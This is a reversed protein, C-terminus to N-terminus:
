AGGGVADPGTVLREALGSARRIPREVAAVIAERTAVLTVAEVARTVGTYLLERTLLRSRPDDPLVVVAHGYESGQSKHITMAHVTEVAELRTVPVRIVAGPQGFVASVRDAAEPMVLGVDGNFLQLGRNNRTVLLPRGPYWTPDDAQGLGHEIRMNWGSAGLPGDRHGCLIQFARQTALAEEVDGSEAAAILRRGHAVGEATVTDIGARTPEVWRVAGGAVLAALTAEADGALVADALRGIEAGFRHRERLITTREMLGSDPRAAAAAVDALVSGADVSALQHPDGVLLLETDPALADLLRAMLSSSLMSAEDVVVLDYALPNDPGVAFRPTRFPAYGLLAHITVAPAADIAAVVRAAAGDDRCRRRLAETMRAAAKGTPAALAIRPVEAAAFREALQRAVLTTKGTGPGGLLVRVRRGGDPGLRRAIRCEEDHSRAVYLRRGDLIFPRREGPAGVLPGASALAAIWAEAREPWGGARVQLPAGDGAWDAIREFDVCTHGDRPARLALALAVWALPEPDVPSERRALDVLMRAAVADGSGVVGAAVYAALGGPLATPPTPSRSSASSDSM